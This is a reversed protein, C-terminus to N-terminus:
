NQKAYENMKAKHSLINLAREVSAIMELENARISHKISLVIAKDEVAKYHEIGKIHYRGSKGIIDIFAKIIYTLENETLIIPINNRIMIIEIKLLAGERPKAKDLEWRYVQNPLVDIIKAFEEVSINLHKRIFRIERGTM